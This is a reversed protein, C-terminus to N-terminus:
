HPKTPTPAEPMIPAEPSVPLPTEGQVAPAPEPEPEPRPPEQARMGPQPEVPTSEPLPEKPQQLPPESLVPPQAPPQAPAAPRAPESPALAGQGTMTFKWDSLHLKNDFNQFRADFNSQKLPAADSLSYVGLVGTKDHLYLIGWEAKGTVPDVFLKRLHRVTNPFRPDKLLEQLSPPQQPQGPPTVSAYSKLADSFAAGIDLLEDEMAARQLLSGVKLTAAGVLGIITVLIILGLYTFGGQAPRGHLHRRM